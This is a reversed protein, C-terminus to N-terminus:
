FNNAKEVLHKIKDMQEKSFTIFGALTAEILMLEKNHLEDLHDVLLQVYEANTLGESSTLGIRGRSKRITLYKSRVGQLHNILMNSVEIIHTTTSKSQSGYDSVVSNMLDKFFSKLRALENERFTSFYDDIEKKLEVRLSSILEDDM